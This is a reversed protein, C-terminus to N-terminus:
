QKGLSNLPTNVHVLRVSVTHTDTNEDERIPIDKEPCELVSMATAVFLTLGARFSAEL